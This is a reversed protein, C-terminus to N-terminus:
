ESALRQIAEGPNLGTVYSSCRLMKRYRHGSIVEVNSLVVPDGPVLLPQVQRVQLRSLDLGSLRQSVHGPIQRRVCRAAGDRDFNAAIAPRQELRRENVLKCPVLFKASNSTGQFPEFRKSNTAM